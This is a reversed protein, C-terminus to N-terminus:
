ASVKKPRVSLKMLQGVRCFELRDMDRWRFKVFTELSPPMVNLGDAQQQRVLLRYKQAAEIIDEINAGQRLITEAVVIQDVRQDFNYDRELRDLDERGIKEVAEQGRAVPHGGNGGKAISQYADIVKGGEGYDNDWHEGNLWTSAHAIFKAPRGAMYAAYRGVDALLQEKTVGKKKRAKLYAKLAPRRPNNPRKPYAAWFEDFDAELVAEAEASFKTSETNPSSSNKTLHHNAPHPEATYPNKPLPIEASAVVEPEMMVVYEIGNWKGDKQRAEDKRVWGVAILEKVMAYAKERGVAGKKQIDAIRVEWDNPRSLLYCLLWRAGISLREDLIADNPIMTFNATLQRRIIM